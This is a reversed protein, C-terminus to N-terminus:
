LVDAWASRRALARCGGGSRLLLASRGRRAPCANTQTINYRAQFEFTKLTCAMLNTPPTAALNVQVVAPAASTVVPFLRDYSGATLSLRGIISQNRTFFITEPKNSVDFIIGCGITDGVSSVPGFSLGAGKDTLKGHEYLCGDDSHFGISDGGNDNWGVMSGAFFSDESLGIGVGAPRNVLITVEFYPATPTLKQEGHVFGYEWLGRARKQDGDGTFEFKRDGKHCVFGYKDFVPDWDGSGTKSRDGVDPGAHGLDVEEGKWMKGEPFDVIYMSGRCSRVTGVSWSRATGWGYAPSETKICVKAGVPFKGSKVLEVRGGGGDSVWKFKDDHDLCFSKFGGASDIEDDWSSNKRIDSCLPGASLSGSASKKLRNVIYDVIDEDYYDSLDSESDSYHAQFCSHWESLPVSFQVPFTDVSPPHSPSTRSIPEEKMHCALTHVLVIHTKPCMHVCVCVQSVCQLAKSPHAFDCYTRTCRIGFRCATPRSGAMHQTGYPSHLFGDM